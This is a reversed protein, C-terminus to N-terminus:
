YWNAIEDSDPKNGLVDNFPYITVTIEDEEKPSMNEIRQM